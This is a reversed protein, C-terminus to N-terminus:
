DGTDVFALVTPKRDLRRRFFSRLSGVLTEEVQKKTAEVPLAAIEEAAYGAAETLIAGGNVPVGVAQLDVPGELAEERARGGAAGRHCGDLGIRKREDLRLETADGVITGDVYHFTLPQREVVNLDDKTVELLDGNELLAFTRSESRPPWPRRPDEHLRVRRPTPVFSKPRCLAIMEKLEDQHAHGSGHVPANREHLVHAGPAVPQEDDPLNTRENGPIIRSSM